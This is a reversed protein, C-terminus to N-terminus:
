NEKIKPNDHLQLSRISIQNGVCSSDLCHIYIPLNECERYIMIHWKQQSSRKIEDMYEKLCRNLHTWLIKEIENMYEKVCQEFKNVSWITSHINLSQKNKRVMHAAITTTKCLPSQLLNQYPQRASVRCFCPDFTLAQNSFGSESLTSTCVLVYIEHVGVNNNSPIPCIDCKKRLWIARYWMIILLAYIAWSRSHLGTHLNYNSEVTSLNLHLGVRCTL